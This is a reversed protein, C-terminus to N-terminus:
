PAAQAQAARMAEGGADPGARSKRRLAPLEVYRYTVISLLGGLAGVVALNVVFGGAGGIVLGHTILGVVVPLNWLFLSYSILGTTVLPWTELFALLRSRRGPALVVLAVLVGCALAMLTDYAYFSVLLRHLEAPSAAALDQQLQMRNELMAASSVAILGASALAASRWWRALRLVRDELDVRLVAVAMGFSFMDAHSWFSSAIVAPWSAFSTVRGPPTPIMLTAAKGSLGVALLLLAPILACVRRHSRRSGRSALKAGMLAVLPLCLYFAVEISLSWTSAIGTFLTEPVYSQVLTANALLVWPDLVRGVELPSSASARVQTLGLLVAALLIVWYAPLIRLARSRFYSRRSPMPSARIIAAAFPQYLLFGSLVFFLTVGTPMHPLVYDSLPGIDPYEGHPGLVGYFVHTLVVGAIAVARLGDIGPLRSGFTPRTREPVIAKGFSM